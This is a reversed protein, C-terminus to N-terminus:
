ILRDMKGNLSIAFYGPIPVDSSNRERTQANVDVKLTFSLLYLLVEILLQQFNFQWSVIKRSFCHKFLPRTAIALFISEAFQLFVAAM